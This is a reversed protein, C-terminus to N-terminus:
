CETHMSAVGFAGGVKVAAVAVVAAAAAGPVTVGAQEVVDVVAAMLLDPEHGRM